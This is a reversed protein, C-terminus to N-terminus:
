GGKSVIEEQEGGGVKAELSLKFFKEFVTLPPAQIDVRVFTSDCANEM